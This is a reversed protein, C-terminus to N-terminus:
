AHHEAEKRLSKQISWADRRENAAVMQRYAASSELLSTHTGSAAVRGKNLVLIQDAKEITKLRHAIILVTKGEALKAFSKQILSENEADATAKHIYGQFGSLRM